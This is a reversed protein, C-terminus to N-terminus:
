RLLSSGEVLHHTSRQMPCVEDMVQQLVNSAAEEFLLMAQVTHRMMNDTCHKADRPMLRTCYSILEADNPPDATSALTSVLADFLESYRAPTATDNGFLTPEHM